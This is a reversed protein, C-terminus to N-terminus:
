NAKKKTKADVYGSKALYQMAEKICHTSDAAACFHKQAAHRSAPQTAADRRPKLFRQKVDRAM